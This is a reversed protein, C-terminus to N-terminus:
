IASLRKSTEGCQYIVQALLASHNAIINLIYPENMMRIYTMYALGDDTNIMISKSKGLSAEQSVVGGIAAISSAMAAIKAPDLSTKVASAIDFGDPSAIVVCLIGDLDSILRQCEKQAVDKLNDPITIM